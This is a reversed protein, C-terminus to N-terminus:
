DTPDIAFWLQTVCVHFLQMLDTNFFYSTYSFRFHCKRLKFDCLWVFSDNRLKQLVFSFLITEFLKPKKPFATM